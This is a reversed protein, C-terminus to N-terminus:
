RLRLYSAVDFQVFAVFDPRKAVGVANTWGEQRSQYAMFLAEAEFVMVFYMRVDGVPLRPERTREEIISCRRIGVVSRVNVVDLEAGSSGAADGRMGSAAFCLM